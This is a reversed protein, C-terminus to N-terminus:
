TAEANAKGGKKSIRKRLKMFLGFVVAAMGLMVVIAGTRGGENQAPAPPTQAPARIADRTLEAQAIPTAPGAQFLGNAREPPPNGEPRAVIPNEREFRAIAELLQADLETARTQYLGMGEKLQVLVAYWQMQQEYNPAVAMVPTIKAVASKIDDAMRALEPATQAQVKEKFKQAEARANRNFQYAEWPDPSLMGKQKDTQTLWTNFADIQRGRGQMASGINDTIYRTVTHRANDVADAARGPLLTRAELETPLSLYLANLMKLEMYQMPWPRTDSKLVWPVDINPEMKSLASAGDVAAAAAVPEGKEPVPVTGRISPATEFAQVRATAPDRADASATAPQTIATPSAQSTMALRPAPAPTAGIEANASLSILGLASTVILSAAARGPKRATMRHPTNIMM